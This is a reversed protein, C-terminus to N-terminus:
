FNLLNFETMDLGLAKAYTLSERGVKGLAVRKNLDTEFILQDNVYQLQKLIAPKEIMGAYEKTNKNYEKYDTKTKQLAHTFEHIMVGRLRYYHEYQSIPSKSAKQFLDADLDLIKGSLNYGGMYDEDTINLNKLSSIASRDIYDRIDGIANTIDQYINSFRKYQDWNDYKVFPNNGFNVTMDIPFNTVKNWNLQLKSTTPSYTIYINKDAKSYYKAM